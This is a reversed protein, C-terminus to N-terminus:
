DGDAIAERVTRGRLRDLDSRVQILAQRLEPGAHREVSHALQEVRNVVDETFRQPAPEDRTAVVAAVESLVEAAHHRLDPDAFVLEVLEATHAELASVWRRGHGSALLEQDRFTRLDALSDASATGDAVVDAICLCHLCFQVLGSMIENMLSAAAPFAPQFETGTELTFAYVPRKASDVFHRSYAYDNSTGSTPYLHVAPEVMYTNGNVAAIADRVGNGTNIFWSQDTAPMYERYVSDGVNGRLGDYVPNLFNMRPDTTQIEDDGWPYLVLQMYSHVDMMGRINPFADLMWRVNQTEPESFASPGHFVESCSNASTVGITASWLFDYNRNIDVGM